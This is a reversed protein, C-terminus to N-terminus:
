KVLRHSRQTLAEIYIIQMRMHKSMCPSRASNGTANWDLFYSFEHPIRNLCDPFIVLVKSGVIQIVDMLLQWFPEFLPAFYHQQDSMDVKVEIAQAIKYITRARGFQGNNISLRCSLILPKPADLDV